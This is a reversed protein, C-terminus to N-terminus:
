RAPGRQPQLRPFGSDAICLKSRSWQRIVAGNVPACPCVGENEIPLKIAPLGCLSPTRCRQERREHRKSIRDVKVKIHALGIEERVGLIARVELSSMNLLNSTQAKAVVILVRACRRIEIEEVIDKVTRAACDVRPSCNRIGIQNQSGAQKARTEVPPRAEKLRGEEHRVACHHGSWDCCMTIVTKPPRCPGRRLSHFYPLNAVTKRTIRDPSAV